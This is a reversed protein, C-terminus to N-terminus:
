IEVYKKEYESFPMPKACYHGQVYDCNVSCLFDYQEKTEVGECVVKINLDRSMDMMHRLIKKSKDQSDSEKLFGKDIKLTDVPLTRLINLSSYGSGFDDLSITFGLKKVSSILSCIIEHDDELVSETIELDVYESPIPYRELLNELREMYYPFTVTIKSQNVSIPLVRKGTALGNRIHQFVRTLVFFDIEVIFGNKEFLPIFSDPQIQGLEESNWRVLAEASCCSNDSLRYKPQIYVTFEDKSLAHLMNIEISKEMETKSHLKQDYVVAYVKPTKKAQQLAIQAADSLKQVSREQLREQIPCIGFKFLVMRRYQKGLRAEVTDLLRDNLDEVLAPTIPAVLAFRDGSIHIGCDYYTKVAHGMAALLQDGMSHGFMSNFRRFFVVDLCVLGYRNECREEDAFFEKLVQEMQFENFLGTLPDQASAPDYERKKFHFILFWVMLLIQLSLVILFAYIWEQLVQQPTDRAVYFLLGVYLLISMLCFSILAISSIQKKMTMAAWGTVAPPTKEDAAASKTSTIRFEHLTTGTSM